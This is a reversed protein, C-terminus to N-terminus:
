IRKGSNRDTFIIEMDFGLIDSIKQLDSISFTQNKLKRSYNQKQIGLKEATQSDNFGKAAQLMRIQNSINM